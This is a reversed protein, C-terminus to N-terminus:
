CSVGLIDVFQVLADKAESNNGFAVYADMAFTHWLKEDKITYNNCGGYGLNEVIAFLQNKARLEGTWAIGRSHEMEDIITLTYGRGGIHEDREPKQVYMRWEDAISDYLTTTVLKGEM